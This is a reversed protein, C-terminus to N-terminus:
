GLDFHSRWIDAKRTEHGTYAEIAQGLDESTLAARGDAIEAIRM